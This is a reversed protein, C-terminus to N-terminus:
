CLYSMFNDSTPFTEWITHSNETCICSPRPWPVNTISTEQTHKSPIPFKEADTRM